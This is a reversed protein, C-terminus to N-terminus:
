IFCSKEVPDSPTTCPSHQPSPTSFAVTQPSTDAVISFQSRFSIM